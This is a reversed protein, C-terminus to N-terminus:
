GIQHECANTVQRQVRFPANKYKQVFLKLLYRAM